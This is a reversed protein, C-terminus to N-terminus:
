DDCSSSICWKFPIVLAKGVASFFRAAASKKRPPVRLNDQHIKLYKVVADDFTTDDSAMAAELLKKPSGFEKLLDKVVTKNIQKMSDEIRRVASDDINLENQVKDSLRKIIGTIDATELARRTKRPAKVAIRMLLAIILNDMMRGSPSADPSVAVPGEGSKELASPPSPSCGEPTPHPVPTPMSCSESSDASALKCKTLAQSDVCLKINLAVCDTVENEQPQTLMNRILDEIDALAGSVEKSYSTKDSTEKEIRHLVQQLFAAVADKTMAYLAEPSSHSQSADLKTLLETVSDSPFKGTLPIEETQDAMLDSFMKDTLEKSFDRIESSLMVIELTKSGLAASKKAQNLKDFLSDVDPKITEFTVPSSPQKKLRIMNMKITSRFTEATSKPSVPVAGPLINEEEDLDDFDMVHASGSDQKLADKTKTKFTSKLEAMMKEFQEQAFRSFSRKHDTQSANTNDESSAAQTAFFDTVKKLILEKNFPARPPSSKESCGVVDGFDLDDLDDIISTVIESAAEDAKLSISPSVQADVAEESVNSTESSWKILIDSVAKTASPVSIKSKISQPSECGEAEVTDPKTCCLKLKGLLGELSKVAHCVMQPLSVINSGSVFVAPESSGGYNNSVMSLVTKVKQSVEREVLDTLEEASECKEEPVHLASAFSGSISHGLHTDINKMASSVNGLPTSKLLCEEFATIVVRLVAKFIREILETFMDSLIAETASDCTAAALMSWQEASIREFYKNVIPLLAEPTILIHNGLQSGSQDM